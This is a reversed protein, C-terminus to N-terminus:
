WITNKKKEMKGSWLFGARIKDFCHHKGVPLRYFSLMYLLSGTLSTNILLTRGAISLNKGNWCGLKKLLKESLPDWASNKLRIEDVPVGFYKTPLEGVQCTFIEEFIKAREQSVGLCYVESKHFNIKM